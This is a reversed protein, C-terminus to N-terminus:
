EKESIGLAKRMFRDAREREKMLIDGIGSFDMDFPKEVAYGNSDTGFREEFHFLGLLTEIRSNMSYKTIRQCIVFPRENLISFVTGHFSDTYVLAAHSILWLFEAPDACYADLQAEDMLEIVDLGKEKALQHVAKRAADAMPSLFYLLIYGNHETEDSVWIPKQEIKGWEEKTLLMTPDVVVPVERGTLEKVIEAGRQERVSIFAMDRLWEAFSEQKEKPIESVGFSAAYSIRKEKPAFTLFRAEPRYGNRPGWVQDSGVVFFDYEGSVGGLESCDYRTHIYRDDFQKFRYQRIADHMWSNIRKESKKESLAYHIRRRMGWKTMDIYFLDQPYHWITDVREAYKELFVQLAYNQLKNGYNYYEDLTLKGIRM